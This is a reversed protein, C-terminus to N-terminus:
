DKEEGSKSSTKPMEEDEFDDDFDDDFDDLYEPTMFRYVAYAIGAMAMIIGVVALVTILVDKQDRKEAKAKLSNMLDELKMLAGLNEM